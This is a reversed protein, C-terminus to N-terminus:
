HRSRPPSQAKHLRWARSSRLRPLFIDHGHKRAKAQAGRRQQRTKCQHQRAAEHRRALECGLQRQGPRVAEGEAIFALDEEERKGLQRHHPRGRFLGEGRGFAVVLFGVFRAFAGGLFDGRLAGFPVSAGGFPSGLGLLVGFHHLRHHAADVRGIGLRGLFHHPQEFALLPPVAHNVLAVPQELHAIRDAARQAM